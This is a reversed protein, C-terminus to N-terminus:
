LPYYQKIQEIKRSYSKNFCKHKARVIYKSIIGYKAKLTDILGLVSPIIIIIGITILKINTTVCCYVTFGIAMTGFIGFVIRAVLTLRSELSSSEITAENEAKEIAQSRRQKYKNNEEVLVNIRDQSEKNIANEFRKKVKM